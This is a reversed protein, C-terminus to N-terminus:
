KKMELDDEDEEEEEESVELDKSTTELSSAADFASSITLAHWGGGGVGSGCDRM